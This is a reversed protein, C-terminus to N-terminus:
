AVLGRLEPGIRELPLVHAQPVLQLAARPMEPRAAEEPDQVIAQGGMRRIERLGRAGDGNAGTLVVGAVREGLAHAASDFLVDISPRSFAVPADIDLAVTDGEILLHYDSPAVLVEGAVLPAKDEAERVPLACRRDLLGSLLDVDGARRHQAVVVAARLNAGLGHLVVGIAHLGGWSAGIAIVDIV